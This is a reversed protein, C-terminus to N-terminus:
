VRIFISRTVVYDLILGLLERKESLLIMIRYAQTLSLM